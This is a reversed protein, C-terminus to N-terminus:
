GIGQRNSFHSVQLLPMLVHDSSFIRICRGIAAVSSKM